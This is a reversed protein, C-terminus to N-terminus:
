AAITNVYPTGAPPMCPVRMGSALRLLEQLMFSGRESGQAGVLTLFSERWEQTEEPDSDGHRDAIPLLHHLPLPSNMTQHKIPTSSWRGPIKKTSSGNHSSFAPM